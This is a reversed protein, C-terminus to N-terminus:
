REPASGLAEPVPAGLARLQELVRGVLSAIAFAWVADAWGPDVGAESALVLGVLKAAGAGLLLPLARTQLWRGTEGLRFTGTALSVAIGLVINAALLGAVIKVAPSGYIVAALALVQALVADWQM